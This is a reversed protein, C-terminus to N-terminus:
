DPRAEVQEALQRRESLRESRVRSTGRHCGKPRESVAACSEDVDSDPRAGRVRGAFFEVVEFCSSEALWIAQASRRGSGLSTSFRETGARKWCTTV